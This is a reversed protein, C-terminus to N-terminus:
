SVRFRLPWFTLTWTVACAGAPYVGATTVDPVTTVVFALFTL